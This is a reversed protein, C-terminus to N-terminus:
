PKVILAIHRVDRKFNLSARHDSPTGPVPLKRGNPAIIKGHKKGAMHRWGKSILNQVIASIEKDKSYRMTIILIPVLKQLRDRKM